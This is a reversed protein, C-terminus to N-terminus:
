YRTAAKSTVTTLFLILGRIMRLLSWSRNFIGSYLCAFWSVLSRLFKDSILLMKWLLIEVTGNLAILIYLVTIYHWRTILLFFEREVFWFTFEVGCLSRRHMDPLLLRLLRWLQPKKKKKKEKEKQDLHTTLFIHGRNLLM